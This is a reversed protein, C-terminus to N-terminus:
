VNTTLKYGLNRVTSITVRSNLKKLIKRLYSVYVEVYNDDQSASNGWVHALIQQKQRIKDPTAILMEMILAEKETLLEGNLTRAGVDYQLDEYHLIENKMEHPRRTIARIRAILEATKFPKAMYDDAGSELGRIKDEVESLASLMIVPTRVGRTRITKLIDIGSLNPLMVDLIICDYYNKMALELGEAGDGVWDVDIDSKELLHKVADALYKEDEVYLVRM